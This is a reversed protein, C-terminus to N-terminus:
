QHPPSHYQQSTQTPNMLRADDNPLPWPYLSSSSQPVLIRGPQSLMLHKNMNPDMISSYRIPYNTSAMTNTLTASTSSSQIISSNEHRPYFQAITGPYVLPNSPSPFHQSQQISQSSNSNSIPNAAEEPNSPVPATQPQFQQSDSQIVVSEMDIFTSPLNYIPNIPNTLQKAEAETTESSSQLNNSDSQDNSEISRDIPQSSELSMSFPPVPTSNHFQEEAVSSVKQKIFLDHLIILTCSLSIM